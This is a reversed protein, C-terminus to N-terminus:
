DEITRIKRKRPTDQIVGAVVPEISDEYDDLDDRTGHGNLGQRKALSKIYNISSLSFIHDDDTYQFRRKNSGGGGTTKSFSDFGKVINGYTSENFYESEKEYISDELQNLKTALQQKKLIQQTLKAKTEAYKDVPAVAEPTKEVKVVAKKPSSTKSM